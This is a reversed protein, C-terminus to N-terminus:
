EEKAEAAAELIALAKAALRSGSGLLQDRAELIVAQLKVNKAELESIREKALRRERLLTDHLKPM